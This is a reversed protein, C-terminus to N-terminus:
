GVRKRASSTSWTSVGLWHRRSEWGTAANRFVNIVDEDDPPLDLMQLGTSVM